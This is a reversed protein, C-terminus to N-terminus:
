IFPRVSPFGSSISTWNWSTFWVFFPLAGVSLSSGSLM